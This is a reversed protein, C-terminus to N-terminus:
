YYSEEVDCKLHTLELRGIVNGLIGTKSGYMAMSWKYSKVCNKM